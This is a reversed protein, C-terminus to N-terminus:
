LTPLTQCADECLLLSYSWQPSSEFATGSAAGLQPHDRDPNNHERANHWPVARVSDMDPLSSATRWTGSANSCARWSLVSGNPSSIHLGGSSTGGDWAPMGDGSLRSASPASCVRERKLPCSSFRLSPYVTPFPSLPSLRVVTGHVLFRWPGQNM